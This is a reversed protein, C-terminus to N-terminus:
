SGRMLETYDFRKELTEVITVMDESFGQVRGDYLFAASPLSSRIEVFSRGKDTVRYYGVGAAENDRSRQLAELVGWHTLKAWDGGRAAVGKGNLFTPVHLWELEPDEKFRRYLLVLVLSMTANLKRRYLKALQGCCPCYAGDALSLHLWTRAVEVSTQQPPQTFTKYDTNKNM